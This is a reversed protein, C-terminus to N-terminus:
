WPQAVLQSGHRAADVEEYWVWGRASVPGHAARGTAVEHRRLQALRAGVLQVQVVAWGAHSLSEYVLAGERDFRPRWAWRPSAEAGTAAEKAVPQLALVNNAYLKIPRVRVESTLHAESRHTWAVRLADAGEVHIAPDAHVVREGDVGDDVRLPASWMRGADKSIAVRVEWGADRRELWAAALLGARADVKVAWQDRPTVRSPTVIPALTAPDFSAGNPSWTGQMVFARSVDGVRGTFSLWLAGGQRTLWPHAHHSLGTSLRAPASLTHTASEYIAYVLPEDAPDGLGQAVVLARGDDSEILHPRVLDLGPMTMVLPAPMRRPDDQRQLMIGRQGVRGQSSAILPVGQSLTVVAAQTQVIADAPPEPLAMGWAGRTYDEPARTMARASLADRQASLDADPDIDAELAGDWAGVLASGPAGEAQGILAEARTTASARAILQAQGDFRQDLLQGTLQSVLGARARPSRQVLAWAGLLQRDPQWAGLADRVAWDGELASPQLILAAGLDEVRDQVDPMTASVGGLVVAAAGPLELSRVAGLGRSALGLSSAERASLHPRDLRAELEGSPGFYWTQRRVEASAAEYVEGLGAEYDRDALQARVGPAEVVSLEPLDVTVLIHLQYRAALQGYTDLMHRAVPDTLALLLLQAPQRQPYHARYYSVERDLGLLLQALAGQASAEQRAQAAKEGVLLSPLSLGEPMLVLSAVGDRACPVVAEFILAHIAERWAQADVLAEVELRVSMAFALAAPPAADAQEFIPSLCSPAPAGRDQLTADYVRGSPLEPTMDEGGADPQVGLDAMDWPGPLNMDRPPLQPSTTNGGPGGPVPASDDGCGWMLAIMLIAFMLRKARATHALM